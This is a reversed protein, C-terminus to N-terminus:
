APQITGIATHQMASPVVGGAVVGAAHVHPHAVAAHLEDLAGDVHPDPPGQPGLGATLDDAGVGESGRGARTHNRVERLAPDISPCTERGTPNDRCGASSARCWGAANM